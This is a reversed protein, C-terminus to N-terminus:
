YVAVIMFYSGEQVPTFSIEIFYLNSHSSRGNLFFFLLLNDVFLDLGMRSNVYRDIFVMRFILDNWSTSKSIDNVSSLRRKPVGVVGGHPM